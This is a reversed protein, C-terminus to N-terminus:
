ISINRNINFNKSRTRPARKEFNKVEQSLILDGSGINQTISLILGDIYVDPDRFQIVKFKVGSIMGRYSSM